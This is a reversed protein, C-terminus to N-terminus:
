FNHTMGFQVGTISTNETGMDNNLSAVYGNDSDLYSVVAYLSTRKSLDYTYGLAYKNANGHVTGDVTARNYSANVTGAGVKYQLGLLWTKQTVPSDIDDLNLVSLDKLNSKQYGLSLRVPDFDWAGGLNWVYSRDSDAQRSFNGTLFLPGNEYRLSVGFGDNFIDRSITRDHDDAGLTYTLGFRVGSFLPSDYRITNSLQESRLLSYKALSSGTTGQLFPILTRIINLPCKMLGAWVSLGGTGKLGSM